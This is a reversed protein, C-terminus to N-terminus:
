AGSAVDDIQFIGIPSPTRRIDEIMRLFEDFSEDLADEQSQIISAECDNPCNRKKERIKTQISSWTKILLISINLLRPKWYKVKECAANLRDIVVAEEAVCTLTLKARLEALIQMMTDKDIEPEENSSRSTAGSEYCASSSNKNVSDYRRARSAALERVADKDVWAENNSARSANNSHRNIAWKPTNNTKEADPDPCLAITSWMGLLLVVNNAKYIM